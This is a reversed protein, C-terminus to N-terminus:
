ADKDTFAFTFRGGPAASGDTYLELIDGDSLNNDCWKFNFTVSDDLDLMCRPVAVQLVNGAVTYTVRGVEEWNWGGLSKELLMMDNTPAVRNLIYEFGEWDKTDAEAPKTDILLRMWNPDTVPSLNNETEVYFYVNEKDYAVKATRIDNRAVQTVYHYGIYGDTDRAITNKAYYDYSIIAQDQWQDVGKTIDITKPSTQADIKASGKFRRVNNVLQYYYHDKLLGKVPEIDRSHEDNFQDPFANEIGAWEEFRGMNWENWGTVFIIQPDLSIAYDWQEQFNLGYCSSNDINRDVKINKGRYEYTYSYDPQGTYSRGMNAPGNMACLRVEKYDANQAVGVTTMEVKGDKNYYASQPYIHLWGWESNDKDGEFYFPNGARYTFFEKLEKQFPDNIDLGSSHAMVMPKGDLCFWLDRYLGPKYLQNYIKTLSALTDPCYIFQMMFAVKPVNVGQKKAEQWTELLTMYGDEWVFSGNTCDFLVFDIGANALMEAHKRLVYKDTRAYYGFLPENWFNFGKYNDWIPNHFDNQIEPYKEMISNINVPKNYKHVQDHWTWYFMGVLKDQKNETGGTQRYGEVSRGLGDVANWKTPDIKRMFNM